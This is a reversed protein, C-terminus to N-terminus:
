RICRTPSQPGLNKFLETARMRLTDCSWGAPPEPVNTLPTLEASAAAPDCSRIPGSLDASSRPDTGYQLATFAGAYRGILTGDDRREMDVFRSSDVSIGYIKTDRVGSAGDLQLSYGPLGDEDSDLVRCDSAKPLDDSACQCRGGVIWRQGPSAPASAEGNQCGPQRHPDFGQAVDLAETAFTREAFLMRHGRPALTEPAIVRVAGIHSTAISECLLTRMTLRDGSKEVDVLMRLKISTLSVGNDGFMFVQAAYRGEVASAWSPLTVSPEAPSGGDSAASDADRAGQTSSGADRESADDDGPLAPGSDADEVDYRPPDCASLAILACAVAALSTSVAATRGPSIPSPGNM